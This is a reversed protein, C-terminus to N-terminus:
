HAEPWGRWALTLNVVAHLRGSHFEITQSFPGSSRYAGEPTLQFVMVSSDAPDVIWYEGVGTKEYLRHKDSRDRKATSRSLVEVVLDPPGNIKSRSVIRSRRRDIVALDPIVIDNETLHVDTPANFVYALGPRELQEYLQFKIHRSISQHGPFPSPSVFHEGHIIEHILGDDPLEAYDNYTLAIGM